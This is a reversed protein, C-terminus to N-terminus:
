KGIKGQLARKSYEEDSLEEKKEEGVGVSEGGLRSRAYLDEQRKLLEKTEQMAKELREATADATNVLNSGESKDGTTTGEAKPEDETKEEEESM